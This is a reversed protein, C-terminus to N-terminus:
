QGFRSRYETSVLFAKVMEARRFDGGFSNLKSLWFNFGSDDPNRRLYGFYEAAVFGENFLRQSFTSNNAVVRLARARGPTDGSGYAAIAQNRESSSPTVGESAYLADVYAGATTGAPYRAVFDPRSVFDETVRQTNADLQQEWGPSGVVLGRGIEQTDRMFELYDPRRTLAGRYLRYVYYGTQQFEISLFFAASTDVRKADRCGADTGCSEINNVWFNFGTPDPERNLFDLYHQRVFFQSDDIPNTASPGADNDTITLTVANQAGLVEGNTPNSLTLTFTESGEVFADDVIFVPVVKTTEGAAFHLTGLALTYDSKQAASGDSTAYSVDAAGSADGTRTVSITFKGDGENRTLDSPNVSFAVAGPTATFNVGTTNDCLPVDRSPPTFAFNARAPALHYSFGQTLGTVSYNGGADTTATL